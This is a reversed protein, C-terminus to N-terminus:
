YKLAPQGDIIEAYDSGITSTIMDKVSVNTLDQGQFTTSGFKKTYGSGTASVKNCYDDSGSNMKYFGYLPGSAYRQTYATIFGIESAHMLSYNISVSGCYANWVYGLFGGGGYANAGTLSGDFLCRNMTITSATYHRGIFGGLQGGGTYSSSIAVSSWCKTITLTTSSSTGNTNGVLGAAGFNSTQISGTVHLNQITCGDVYSFPACYAAESVYAINLKHGNGEFTGKYPNTSTGVMVQSNGLDVDKKMVANLSTEGGNVLVAFEEWDSANAIIYRGQPDYTPPTLDSYFYGDTPNAWRADVKDPDYTIHAALKNCDLFMDASQSITSWSKDCYITQLRSCGRFMDKVNTVHTMDFNNVDLETIGFERYGSLYCGRFMAEMTTVSRTDLTSVDIAELSYCGDFLHSMSTVNRTDLKSLDITSLHVCGSFMAEMTTASALAQSGFNVTTLRTCGAFMRSVDEVHSMDLKSVDISGFGTRGEFMSRMSTVLSTNLYELGDVSTLVDPNNYPDYRYFWKELTTLPVTRFSPEIVVQTITANGSWPWPWNPDAIQLTNVATVSQVEVGNYTDGAAIEHSSRLFRLETYTGGNLQLAYIYNEGNFYGNTGTAMTADVKAADYGTLQTCGTFMAASYAPTWAVDAHITQLSSCGYFMMTTNVVPQMDVGVFDLSQLSTCGYFMKNMYGVRSTNLYVLGEVSALNSCGHFWSYCGSPAVYRFGPEIVVRTVADRVVHNGQTDTYKIWAPAAAGNSLNKDNIEWSLSVQQGNYEYLEADSQVFYLTSASPCWLAYGRRAQASISLASCLLVATLLYKVVKHYVRDQKMM